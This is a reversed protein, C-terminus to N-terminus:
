HRWCLKQASKLINLAIHRVASINAPAHGKRIRSQDENFIVDLVWHLSNEGGGHSRIAKSIYLAKAPLSTIYYRTEATSKDSIIRTFEIRVIPKYARGKKLSM